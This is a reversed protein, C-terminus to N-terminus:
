ASIFRHTQRFAKSKKIYFSLRLLYVARTKVVVASIAYVVCHSVSAITINLCNDLLIRFLQVPVITVFLYTRRDESLFLSIGRGRNM